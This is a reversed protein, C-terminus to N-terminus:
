ILRPPRDLGAYVLALACVFRPPRIFAVLTAIFLGVLVLIAATCAGGTLTAPGCDRCSAMSMGGILIPVGTVLVVVVLAIILAKRM